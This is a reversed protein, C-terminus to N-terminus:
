PLELRFAALLLPSLLVQTDIDIDVDLATALPENFHSYFAKKENDVQTSGSDESWGTSIGMCEKRAKSRQLDEDPSKQSGDKVTESNEILTVKVREVDNFITKELIAQTRADAEM